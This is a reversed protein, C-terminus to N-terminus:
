LSLVVLVCYLHGVIDITEIFIYMIVFFVNVELKGQLKLLLGLIPLM